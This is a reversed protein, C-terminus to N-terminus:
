FICSIPFTTKRKKPVKWHSEVHAFHWENKLATFRITSRHSCFGGLGPIEQWRLTRCRAWGRVPPRHRCSTLNFYGGPWRWRSSRFVHRGFLMEGRPDVKLREGEGEEEGGGRSFNKKVAGKNHNKGGEDMPGNSKLTGCYTIAMQHDGM